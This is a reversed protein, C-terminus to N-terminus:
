EPLLKVGKIFVLLWDESVAFDIKLPRVAAHRVQLRLAPLRYVPEGFELPDSVLRQWIRRIAALAQQGRGEAKAQKQIRKLENAIVGSCHV